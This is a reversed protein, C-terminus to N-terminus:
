RYRRLSIHVEDALRVQEANPLTDFPGWLASVAPVQPLNGIDFTWIGREKDASIFRYAFRNLPVLCNSGPWILSGPPGPLQGIADTFVFRVRRGRELRVVTSGSPSATTCRPAFGSASVLLAAGPHAQTGSLEFTGPEVEKLAAGQGITVMANTVPAGFEDRVEVATRYSRLELTIGSKVTGGVIDVEVIPSVWRDDAPRQQEARVLYKQFGLTDLAVPLRDSPEVVYTAEILGGPSKATKMRFVITVPSSRDWNLIQVSLAGAPVDWNLVNIGPEVTLLREVGLVTMGNVRLIARYSGPAPVSLEFAGAPGVTTAPLTPGDAAGGDLSVALEVSGPIPKGNRLISGVISTATGDLVVDSTTGAVVDFPVVVNIGRARDEVLATHSGPALGELYFRCDVTRRPPIVERQIRAGSGTRSAEHRVIKFTQTQACLSGGITVTAAGTAETTLTAYTTSTAQIDVTVSSGETGGRYRPSAAYSGPALGRLALWGTAPFTVDGEWAGSKFRYGLPTFPRARALVFLEGGPVPPPLAWADTATRLEDQLVSVPSVNPRVFRILSTAARTPDAEVPVVPPADLTRRATVIVAGAANWELWEVTVSGSLVDENRLAVARSRRWPLGQGSCAAGVEVDFPMANEANCSLVARAPTCVVPTANPDFSPGAEKAPLAITCQAARVWAPVAQPTAGVSVLSVIAAALRVLLVITTTHQM